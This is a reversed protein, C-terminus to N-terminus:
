KLKVIVKEDEPKKIVMGIIDIDEELATKGKVTADVEAVILDGPLLELDKTKTEVIGSLAVSVTDKNIESCIGIIKFIDSQESVKKANGEQDISLVDGPTIAESVKSVKFEEILM